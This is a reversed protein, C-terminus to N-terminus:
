RGLLFMKKKYYGDIKAVHRKPSVLASPRAGPRKATAYPTGTFILWRRLKLFL